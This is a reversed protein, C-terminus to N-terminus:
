EEYKIVDKIGNAKFAELREVCSGCKGCAIPQNKYCTRTLHFPFDLLLGQAIIDTKNWDLFPAKLRINKDTAKGVALNMNEIFEPRCDPYILHDGSHVGLWVEKADNSEALGTLISIFIMNRAPIVTQSMSKDEYHGEPIDGQGKLLNSKFSALVSTINISHLELSYYNCISVAAAREYENHKSPYIFSVATPNKKEYIATNLLVASDLGGSLSLMIKEM